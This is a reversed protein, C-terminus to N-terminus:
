AHEDQKRWALALGRGLCSLREIQGFQGEGSERLRALGHEGGEDAEAPCVGGSGGDCKSETRGLGPVYARVRLELTCGGGWCEIDVGTDEELCEVRAGKTM